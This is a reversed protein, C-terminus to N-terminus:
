LIPNPELDGYIGALVVLPLTIDIPPNYPGQFLHRNNRVVMMSANAFIPSAYENIGFGEHVHGFVHLRLSKLEQVRRLLEPCGCPNGSWNLDLIGAPPGHTVLIDTDDPIKSWEERAATGDDDKPFNYAWDRFWPTWPSGHIKVGEIEVSQSLLFHIRTGHFLDLWTEIQLDHNGPVVVIEKAPQEQLWTVFDEVEHREGRVTFDGAHILLDCEPLTGYGQRHYGHSDSILVCKM